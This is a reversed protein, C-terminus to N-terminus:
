GPEIATRSVNCLPYTSNTSRAQGDYSEAGLIIAGAVAVMFLTFVIWIVLRAPSENRSQMYRNDYDKELSFMEEVVTVSDGFPHRFYNTRRLYQPGILETLSLISSHRSSSGLSPNLAIAIDAISSKRRGPEGAPLSLTSKQGVDPPKDTDRNGDKPATAGDVPPNNAIPTDPVFAPNSYEQSTISITTENM